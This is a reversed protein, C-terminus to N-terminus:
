KIAVGCVSPVVHKAVSGRFRRPLAGLVMEGLAFFAYPTGLVCGQRSLLPAYRSYGNERVLRALERNTWEKLHFGEPEDCFYRSIDHPGTFPHPTRFVYRGGPKLIRHVNAFHLGTDEPHLHELLQDSFVVDISGAAIAGLDYGDYVVLEFNEPVPTAPDRQDSIDVGIIRDVEGAIRYAFRCDGPAFEVFRVSPDLFRGVLSYKGANARETLRADSRRTLRPHDPVQRFLEDYMTAYILKREGRDAAM